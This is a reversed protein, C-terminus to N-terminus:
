GPAECLVGLYKPLRPSALGVGRMLELLAQKARSKIPLGETELRVTYSRLTLVRLGAADCASQMSAEDFRQIHGDLFFTEGCCPCLYEAIPRDYPVTVM